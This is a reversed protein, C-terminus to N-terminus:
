ISLQRLLENVWYLWHSQSQSHILRDKWLPRLTSSHRLVIELGSEREEIKTASLFPELIDVYGQCNRWDIASFPKMASSDAIHLKMGSEVKQFTKLMSLQGFWRTDNPFQPVKAPVNNNTCIKRYALCNNKSKSLIVANANRWGRFCGINLSM